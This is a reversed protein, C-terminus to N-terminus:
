ASTKKAQGGLPRVRASWRGQGVLVLLDLVCYFAGAAFPPNASTIGLQPVTGEWTWSGLATGYLEMALALVMMTTYLTREPKSVMCLAFLGFLAAGLQDSAGRWAYVAYGLGVWPVWRLLPQFVRRGNPAVLRRSVILGLTMLLAHGPPVFLPINAFRYAYLGFVLSLVVEGMGAVLTCLILAHREEKGGRVYLWGWIWTTWAIAACQGPWGFAADM